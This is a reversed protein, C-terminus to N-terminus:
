SVSFLFTCCSCLELYSVAVGVSIGDLLCLLKPTEILFICFRFVQLQSAASGPFSKNPLLLVQRLLACQLSTMKSTIKINNHAPRCSIAIHVQANHYALMTHNSQSHFPLCIFLTHIYTYTHTHTTINIHM